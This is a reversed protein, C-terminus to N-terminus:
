IIVEITNRIRPVNDKQLYENLIKVIIEPREANLLRPPNKQLWFSQNQRDNKTSCYMLADLAIISLPRGSKIWKYATPWDFNSSAALVGWNTHINEIRDKISEIWKLTINNQFYLLAEILDSLYKNEAKEIEETILIFGEDFPLCKAIAESFIIIEDVKRNDWEHRIWGAAYNGLTRAVIEYAKYNIARSTKIKKDIAELIKEKDHEKLLDIVRESTFYEVTAFDILKELNQKINELVPFSFLNSDVVENEPQTALGKKDYFDDHLYYDHGHIATLNFYELPRLSKGIFRHYCNNCLRFPKGAVDLINEIDSPNSICSECYISQSTM